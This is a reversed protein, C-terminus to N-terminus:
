RECFDCCKWWDEDGTKHTANTQHNWWENKKATECRRKRLGEGGKKKEEEDTPVVVVVVEKSDRLFKEKEINAEERSNFKNFLLHSPYINYHSLTGKTTLWLDIASTPSIPKLELWEEWTM